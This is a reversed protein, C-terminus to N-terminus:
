VNRSVCDYPVGNASRQIQSVPKPFNYHPVQNTWGGLTRSHDFHYKRHRSCVKRELVDFCHDRYAWRRQFSIKCEALACCCRNMIELFHIHSYQSTMLIWRRQKPYKVEATKAWLFTGKTPYLRAVSTIIIICHCPMPQMRSVLLASGVSEVLPVISYM